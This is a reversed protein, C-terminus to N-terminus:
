EGKRNQQPDPLRAPTKREYLKAPRHGVGETVADTETVLDAIKRRFNAPQRGVGTVTEMVRQLDALTFRPPLFDFIVDYDEASRRLVDLASVIMAAHDFALGGSELIEYSSQGFHTQKRRLRAEMTEEGDTLRLLCTEGESPELHLNFWRADAADDGSKPRRLEDPLVSVYLGSLIWGRPDRGPATFMSVPMLANPRVGTEEKAERAACDDLTESRKLFGGPLAWCDKFPHDGRRILLISLRRGPDHRYSDPRQSGITFIAIDATVSPRDYKAIDYAKLFQQENM